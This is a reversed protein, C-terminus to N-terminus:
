PVYRGDPDHANWLPEIHASRVPLYLLNLLEEWQDQGRHFQWDARVEWINDSAFPQLKVGDKETVLVLDHAQWAAVDALKWAYHDSKWDTGIINVGARLCLTAFSQPNGVGASLFASKGAMKELPQIHGSTLQRLDVICMGGEMRPLEALGVRIQDVQQWIKEVEAAEVLETRSLVIADARRLARPFERLLGAPLCRGFPRTADLVVVDTDRRIRLHQFGDDLLVVEVGGREQMQALGQVRNPNEVLITQPHRNELLRGEDGGYGRSLVGVKADHRQLWQVASLLLPTKGTGGASINGISLTPMPPRHSAKWGRQYAWVRVAAVSGYLWGLPALIWALATPIKM